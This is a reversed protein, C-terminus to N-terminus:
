DGASLQRIGEDNTRMGCGILSVNGAPIYDSGELRGDGEIRLIPKMMWLKMRQTM